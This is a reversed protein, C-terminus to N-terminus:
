YVDLCCTNVTNDPDVSVMEISALNQETDVAPKFASSAAFTVSGFANQQRRPHQSVDFVVKLSFFCFM